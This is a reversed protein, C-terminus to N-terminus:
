TGQGVLASWFSKSREIRDEKSMDSSAKPSKGSTKFKLLMKETRVAAPNKSFTKRIEAAIQALYYDERHFDNVEQELYEMWLLFEGSTM